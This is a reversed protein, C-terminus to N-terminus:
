AQNVFIYNEGTISILFFSGHANQICMLLQLEATFKTKILFIKKQCYYVCVHKPDRPSVYGVNKWDFIKETLFKELRLLDIGRLFFFFIMKWFTSKQAKGLFQLEGLKTVLSVHKPLPRVHCMAFIIKWFFFEKGQSLIPAM